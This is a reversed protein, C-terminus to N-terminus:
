FDYRFDSFADSSLDLWTDISAYEGDYNLVDGCVVLAPTGLEDEIGIILCDDTLLDDHTRSSVLVNMDHPLRQLHEILQSVNM